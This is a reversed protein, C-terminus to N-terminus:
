ENMDLEGNHLQTFNFELEKDEEDFIKTGLDKLSSGAKHLAGLRNVLKSVCTMSYFHGYIFELAHHKRLANFKKEELDNFVSLKIRFMGDLNVKSNKDKQIEINFPELLEFEQLLECVKKSISNSRDINALLQAYNKFSESEKGESDFLRDGEGSSVLTPSDELILATLGGDPLRAPRLPFARMVAPLFNITWEGTPSVLLNQGDEFGMLGVIKFIDKEKLFIIPLYSVATQLEFTCIPLFIQKEIFSYNKNRSIAMDKHKVKSLVTWEM